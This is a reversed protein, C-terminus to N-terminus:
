TAKKITQPDNEAPIHTGKVTRSHGRFEAVAKGAENRVVVDYIGARGESWRESATATLQEGEYVPQLFSVSCHQAVAYQNHTNCAFAFASDALTFMVGGHCTGHGNLMTNKVKMALTATGPSISLLQMGMAKSCYDHEWMSAACAKALEEGEASFGTPSTNVPPNDYSDSM